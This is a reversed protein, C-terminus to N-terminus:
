RQDDWFVSWFVEFHITAIATSNNTKDDNESSTISNNSTSLTGYMCIHKSVRQRNNIIASWNTGSSVACDMWRWQVVCVVARHVYFFDIVFSVTAQPSCALSFFAFCVNLKFFLSRLRVLMPNPQGLLLIDLLFYTSFWYVSRTHTTAHLGYYFYLNISNQSSTPSKGVHSSKPLETENSNNYWGTETATHKQQREKKKAAVM